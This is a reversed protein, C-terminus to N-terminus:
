RVVTVSINTSSDDRPVAVTMGFSGAGLPLNVFTGGGEPVVASKPEGAETWGVTADRTLVTRLGSGLNSFWASASAQGGARITLNRPWVTLVDQMCIGISIRDGAAVEARERYGRRTLLDACPRRADDTIQGIEGRLDRLREMIERARRSYTGGVASPLSEGRDLAQQVEYDTLVIVIAIGGVVIPAVWGGASASPPLASAEAWDCADACVEWGDGDCLELSSECWESCDWVCAPEPEGGDDYGGDGYCDCEAYGDGACLELTTTCWEDCDAACAPADPDDPNEPPDFDSGASCDCGAGDGECMDLTTTCWEDCDAACAAPAGPEDARWPDEQDQPVADPDGAPDLADAAVDAADDTLNTPVLAIGWGDSVGIIFAGDGGALEDLSETTPLGDDFAEAGDSVSAGDDIPVLMVEVRTGDEAASQSGELPDALCGSGLIGAIGLVIVRTTM